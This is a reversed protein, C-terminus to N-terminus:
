DRISCSALIKSYEQDRDRAAAILDRYVPQHKREVDPLHLSSTNRTAGYM